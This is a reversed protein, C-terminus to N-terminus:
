LYSGELALCHAKERLWIRSLWWNKAPDQLTSLDKTVDDKTARASARVGGRQRRKTSKSNTRYKNQVDRSSKQGGLAFSRQTVWHSCALLSRSPSTLNVDTTPGKATGSLHVMLFHSTLEWLTAGLNHHYGGLQEQDRRSFNMKKEKCLWTHLHM